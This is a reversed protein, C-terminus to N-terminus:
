APRRHITGPTIRLPPPVTKIFRQTGDPFVEVIAEGHVEVVSMGAALARTRAEHMALEARIAFDEITETSTHPEDM